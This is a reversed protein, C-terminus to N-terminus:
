FCLNGSFFLKVETMERYKCTHTIINFLIKRMDFIILKVRRVWTLKSVWTPLDGQCIQDNQKHSKLSSWDQRDAQEAKDVQRDGEKGGV